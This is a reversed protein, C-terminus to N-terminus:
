AASRLEWFEEWRGSMQCCRLAIIQNAGRVTWHMGSQKLRQGIVTRCGAEVVGSGIFLGQKRFHAYRMRLANTGFYGIERRVQDRLDEDHPELRALAAILEEIKGANLLKCHAQWWTKAVSTGAGHLAKSLDSLHERAHYVDLIELANPFHEQALNWIWPAGDGLVVVQKAHQVGRRVAEAYLRRGFAHAPEIAGVYSTSGEDRIARGEEDCETQSFICGLKVERTKAKGSQPDKGQLGVLERPVIPVGTGDIAIYLRPIAAPFGVLKGGWVAEQEANALAQIQEGTAESVREIQKARVKVGALTEIDVRGRAFPGQGGVHAMMRRLGPSFSTNVIDLARDEPVVGAGCTACHYYARRLKVPGLVTTITKARYGVFEAQHGHACQVRPGLHEGGEANLLEGLLAAGVSHLSSRVAM